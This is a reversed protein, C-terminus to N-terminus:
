DGGGHLRDDDLHRAALDDLGAVLHVGDGDAFAADLERGAVRAEDREQARRRLRELRQRDHARARVDVVLM